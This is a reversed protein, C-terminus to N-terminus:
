DCVFRASSIYYNSYSNKTGPEGGLSVKKLIGEVSFSGSCSNDVGSLVVIQKQSVEAYSQKANDGTSSLMPHQMIMKPHEAQVYVKKDLCSSWDQSLTCHANSHNVPTPTKSTSACALFIAFIM